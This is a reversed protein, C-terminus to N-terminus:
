IATPCTTPQCITTLHRCSVSRKAGFRCWGDPTERSLFRAPTHFRSFDRAVSFAPTMSLLGCRIPAELVSLHRNGCPPSQRPLPAQPYPLHVWGNAPVARQKRQCPTDTRRSATRYQFEFENRTVFKKVIQTHSNHNAADPTIKLKIVQHYDARWAFNQPLLIGIRALRPGNRTEM